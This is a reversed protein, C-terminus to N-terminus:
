PAAAKGIHQRLRCWSEDDEEDEQEEFPDALCGDKRFDRRWARLRLRLWRRSLTTLFM